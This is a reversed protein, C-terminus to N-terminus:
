ADHEQHRMKYIIIGLGALACALGLALATIGGARIPAYSGGALLLTAGLVPLVVRAKQEGGDSRVATSLVCAAFILVLVVLLDLMM